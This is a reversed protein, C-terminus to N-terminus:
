ARLKRVRSIAAQIAIGIILLGAIAASEEVEESPVEILV